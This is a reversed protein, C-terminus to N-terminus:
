LVDEGRHYIRLARHQWMAFLVSAYMCIGMSCSKIINNNKNNCKKTLDDESQHLILPCNCMASRNQFSVIIVIVM